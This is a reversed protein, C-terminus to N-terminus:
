IMQYPLALAIQHARNAGKITTRQKLVLSFKLLISKLLFTIIHYLIPGCGPATLSLNKQLATLLTILNLNRTLLLDLIILISTTSLEELVQGRPLIGYFIPRLSCM